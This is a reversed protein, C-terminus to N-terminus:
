SVYSKRFNNTNKFSFWASKLISLSITKEFFYLIFAQPLLQLIKLSDLFIVVKM